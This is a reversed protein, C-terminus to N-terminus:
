KMETKFVKEKKEFCNNEEFVSENIKLNRKEGSFRKELKKFNVFIVILNKEFLLFFKGLNGTQWFSKKKKRKKKRKPTNSFYYGKEKNNKKKNRKKFVKCILVKKNTRKARVCAYVCARM